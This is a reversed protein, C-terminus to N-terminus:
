FIQMFCGSTASQPSSDARAYRMRWLLIMARSAGSRDDVPLKCNWNLWWPSMDAVDSDSPNLDGNLIMYAWSKQAPRPFTRNVRRNCTKGEALLLSKREEGQSLADDATGNSSCTSGWHYQRVMEQLKWRCQSWPFRPHRQRRYRAPDRLQLSSRGGSPHLYYASLLANCVTLHACSEALKTYFRKSVM